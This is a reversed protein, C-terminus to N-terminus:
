KIKWIARYESIVFEQCDKPLERFPIRKGLHCTQGIQRSWGWKNIDCPRHDSWGHQGFGQPSFPFESMALYPWQHTPGGKIVAGRGTFVATYRDFTGGKKDPGGNDYVRLYKPIGQPMLRKRRDLKYSHKNYTKATRTNM